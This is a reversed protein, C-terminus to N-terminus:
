TGPEGHGRVDGSIFNYVETIAQELRHNSAYWRLKPIIKDANLLLSTSQSADIDVCVVRWGEEHFIYALAKRNGPLPLIAWEQEFTVEHTVMVLFSFLKASVQSLQDPPFLEPYALPNGMKGGSSPEFHWTSVRAGVFKSGRFEPISSSMM